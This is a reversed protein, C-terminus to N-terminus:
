AVVCAVLAAAAVITGVTAAALGAGDGARTGAVLAGIGLVVPFGIWFVALAPASLAALWIAARRQDTAGPVVRGFVLAALVVSAAIGVILPGAGGSEGDSLGTNAAVLGASALLVAIAGAPRVAIRTHTTTTEM